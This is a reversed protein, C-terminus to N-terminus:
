EKNNDGKCFILKKNFVRYQSTGYYIKPLSDDKCPNCIMNYAIVNSYTIHGSFDRQKLRFYLMGTYPVSEWVTSYSNIRSSNGAGALQAITSYSLGDLSYELIFCENNTECATKWAFLLNDNDQSVNFKWLDIPLLHWYTMYGNDMRYVLGNATVVTDGDVGGSWRGSINSNTVRYPNTKGGPFKDIDLTMQSLMSKFVEYKLESWQTFMNQASVLSSFDADGSFEITSLNLSNRFMEETTTVNSFDGSLSVTELDSCYSFVGKLTELSEFGNVIASQLGTCYRFMSEINTVNPFAGKITANASVDDNIAVSKIKECKYFMNAMTTLLPFDGDVVVSSLNTCSNFMSSMSELANFSGKITAKSLSANNHFLSALSNINSFIGDFVVEDLLTCNKFTNNISNVSNFDGKLIATRLKDHGSFLSNLSTLSSFTGNLETNELMNCNSFINTINNLSSFNGQLLVDKLADCYRFTSSLTKVGSFDGQLSVDADDGNETISISSLKKCAYFMNAMDELTSSFDKVIGELLASTLAYCNNFMSNTTTINSFDDCRVVVSPLEKCGSFMSKMNTLAPGFVINLDCTTLKSCNYFMASTSTIKPTDGFVDDILVTQLESCGNFLSGLSTVKSFDGKLSVDADDGHETISASKLSKCNLFMNTMGSLVKFEGELDASTLNICGSFMSSSTTVGSFDGSITVDKLNLLNAFMSAFSTFKNTIGTISVSELSTCNKFMTSIGSSNSFVGNLDIDIIKTCNAFMQDMSTVNEFDWYAIGSLDEYNSTYFIKQGGCTQESDFGTKFLKACTGTVLPNSDDSVYYYVDYCGAHEANPVSYAYVVAPYRSDPIVIGNVDTKGNRTADDPWTVWDKDYSVSLCTRRFYEQPERNVFAEGEDKELRILNVLNMGGFDDDCLYGIRAKLYSEDYVGNNANPEMNCAWSYGSNQWANGDPNLLKATPTTQGFLSLNLCLLCAILFYRIFNCYTHIFRRM